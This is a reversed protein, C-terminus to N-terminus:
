LLLSFLVSFFKGGLALMNFLFFTLYACIIHVLGRFFNTNKFNTLIKIQLLVSWIFFLFIFVNKWIKSIEPALLSVPLVFACIFLWPAQTLFILGTFISAGKENTTKPNFLSITFYLWGSWLILYAINFFIKLLFIDIIILGTKHSSCLLDVLLRSLTSFFLILFSFLWLKKETIKEIYLEPSFLM